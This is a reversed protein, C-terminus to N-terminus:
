IIRSTFVKTGDSLNWPIRYETMKLYHKLFGVMLNNYYHIIESKIIDTPRMM